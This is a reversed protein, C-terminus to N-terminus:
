WRQFAHCSVWGFCVAGGTHAVLTPLLVILVLLVVRFEGAVVVPLVVLLVSLVVRVVGAVVLITSTFKVLDAIVVSLVIVAM